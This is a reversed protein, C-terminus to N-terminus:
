RLNAAGSIERQVFVVSCYYPWPAAGIGYKGTLHGAEDYVLFFEPVSV